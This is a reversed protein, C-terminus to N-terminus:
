RRLSACYYIFIIVQCTNHHYLSTDLANWHWREIGRACSSDINESIKTNETATVTLKPRTTNHLNKYKVHTAKGLKLPSFKDLYTSEHVTSKITELFIKRSSRVLNFAKTFEYCKLKVCLFSTFPYSKTLKSWIFPQWTKSLKTDTTCSIHAPGSM